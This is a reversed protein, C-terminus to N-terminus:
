HIITVSSPKVAKLADPCIYNLYDPIGEKDTLSNSIAWRAEDELTVLLSKDLSLKFVFGDWFTAMESLDLKLRSAVIAQAEKKNKGIFDTARDIARVFRELAVPHKASFNKSAMFNFTERYVGSSPLRVTKGALMKRAKYAHPEWIVIADVQGSNLAEPLKFPSISVEMIESSSIKNSVLFADLFFQGTTGAPTGVRKGRMDGPEKIGRDVRAIVKVDDDSYVMTAFVCFDDRKFSNFMIPTPAVTSLDVGGKLMDVFSLRGSEFEVIRLDLGEEQFFNRSEAVWVSAPLLSAEVGLTAEELSSFSKEPQSKDSLVYWGLSASVAIVGIAIRLWTQKNEQLM